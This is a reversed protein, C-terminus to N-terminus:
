RKAVKKGDVVVLSTYHNSTSAKALAKATLLMKKLNAETLGRSKAFQARTVSGRKKYSDLLGALEAGKDVPQTQEDVQAGAVSGWGWLRHALDHRVAFRGLIDRAKTATPFYGEAESACPRDNLDVDGSYPAWVEGAMQGLAYLLAEPTGRDFRHHPVYPVLEALRELHSRDAYDGVPFMSCAKDASDLVMLYPRLKDAGHKMGLESNSDSLFPGFVMLAADMSAIGNRKMLLSHVSELRELPNRAADRLAGYPSHVDWDAEPIVKPPSAPTKPKTMPIVKATM